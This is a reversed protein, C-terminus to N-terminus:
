AGVLKWALLVGVAAAFALVGVTLANYVNCIVWWYNYKLSGVIGAAHVLNM